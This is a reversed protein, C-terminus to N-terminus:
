IDAILEDSGELKERAANIRITLIYRHPTMRFTRKVLACFRSRSCGVLPLLDAMRIRDAYRANILRVVKQLRDYLDPGAEGEQAYRYVAATEAIRGRRDFLPALSTVVLKDAMDCLPAVYNPHPRRTRMVEREHATFIDAIAKPLYDYSTKGIADAESRFGTISVNRGNLATIRGSSDKMVFAVNPLTDFLAKISAITRGGVQRFFDSQIKSATNKGKDM